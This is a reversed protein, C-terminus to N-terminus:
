PCEMQIALCTKFPQAESARALSLWGASVGMGIGTKTFHAVVTFEIAGGSVQHFTRSLQSLFQLTLAHDKRHSCHFSVRRCLRQSGKIHFQAVNPPPAG